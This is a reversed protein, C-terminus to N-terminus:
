KSSNGAFTPLEVKPLKVESFNASAAAPAATPDAIPAPPTLDTIAKRAAALTKYTNDYWKNGLFEDAEVTADENYFGIFSWISEDTETLEKLGKNLKEEVIKITHLCPTPDNIANQLHTINKTIQTRIAKRQSRQTVFEDMRHYKEKTGKELFATVIGKATTEDM